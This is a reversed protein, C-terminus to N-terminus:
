RKAAVADVIVKQDAAIEGKAIETRRGDTAGIVVPVAAPAGDRLVWVTRSAGTEEQKSPPRFTPRGSFLRQLLSQQQGGTQTAAPSFRLAPNPVLLADKVQQVVIEATATMGPRIMLDSNDISLVAKYTVVGQVVESGFRIDRIEAPFKRDPYADVSFSVTHGIRVKGVDAEDVDVLVEMRRLDEAIVFLIPAQLSTAVFQGPDVGRKLVVGDIPSRITAKALNIENLHLDAEAAAVDAVALAHQAISRDYNAKALELDRISSINTTSLAKKRENEARKEEISAAADAVKAKTSALKARSNDVTAKLKDTDLEALAQGAKVPSNYDVFVNRMTGSLESSINVQTIPQASGTATVIVTLNGRTAPETVYSVAPRSGTMSWAAYLGVGAIVAVAAWILNRPRLLGSHTHDGVGLIAEIDRTGLPPNDKPTEKPRDLMAM